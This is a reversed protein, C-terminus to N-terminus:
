ALAATEAVRNTGSHTRLPGMNRRPADAAKPHTKAAVTAAAAAALTHARRSPHLGCPSPQLTRGRDQQTPTGGGAGQGQRDGRSGKGDRQGRGKRRGAEAEAGTHQSGPANPNLETGWSEEGTVRAGELSQYIVLSNRRGQRLLPVLAGESGRDPDVEGARPM